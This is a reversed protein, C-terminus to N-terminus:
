EVVEEEGTPQGFELDEFSYIIVAIGGATVSVEVVHNSRSFATFGCRPCVFFWPFALLEVQTPAHKSALRM